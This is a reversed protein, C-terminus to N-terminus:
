YALAAEKRMKWIRQRSIARITLGISGWRSIIDNRLVYILKATYIHFPFTWIQPHITQILM